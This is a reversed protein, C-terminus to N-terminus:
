CERSESENGGGHDGIVAILINKLGITQDLHTFFADLLADSQVILAEQSPDDPGFAYGNIDTSSITIMDTVGAPNDGLKEADILTQAFDLQYQVSAATRGVIEYFNGKLAHSKARASRFFDPWRESPWWCYSPTMM